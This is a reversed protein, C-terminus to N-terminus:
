ISALVAIYGWPVTGPRLYLFPWDDTPIRVNTDAIKGFRGVRPINRPDINRGVLFTAADGYLVVWPAIGTAQKIIGSMREIMWQGAVVSYAVSLLGDDNVHDWGARIGEVTYVYNDLRLSSMTAFMAHSDLYGYAVVDFTDSNREFWARADSVVGVVHENAYPHEPHHARGARQIARDIEVGYVPAYGRRLAAAIDNGTGADVVLASGRHGHVVYPIEYIMRMLQADQDSGTLDAM